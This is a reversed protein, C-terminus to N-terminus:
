RNEHSDKKVKRKTFREYLIAMIVVSMLAIIALFINSVAISNFTM